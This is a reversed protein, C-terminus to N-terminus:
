TELTVTLGAGVSTNTFSQTGTATLPVGTGNPPPAGLDVTSFGNDTNTAVPGNCYLSTGVANCPAAEAEQPLLSVGLGAFAAMAVTSLMSTALLAGRRRTRQNIVTM